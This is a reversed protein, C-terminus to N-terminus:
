ETKESLQQEVRLLAMSSYDMNQLKILDPERALPSTFSQNPHHQRVAPSVLAANKLLPDPTQIGYLKTAKVSGRKNNNTVPTMPEFSVSKDQSKQFSHGSTFTNAKPSSGPTPQKPYQHKSQASPEYLQTQGKM